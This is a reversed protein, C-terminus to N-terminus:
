RLAQMSYGKAALGEIICPVAAATTSKTSHMLISAGDFAGALVQSCIWSSGFGTTDASTAGWLILKVGNAAAADYTVSTRNGGPPRFYTPRVGTIRVIESISKAIDNYQWDYSRTGYDYIAHEFGHSQVAHGEAVARRLAAADTDVRSGLEFFTVKIGYCAAYNMIQNGYTLGDDFTLYVIGSSGGSVPKITEVTSDYYDVKLNYSRVGNTGLDSFIKKTAVRDLRNGGVSKVRQCSGITSASNYTDVKAAIDTVLSDLKSSSWEVKIKSDSKTVDLMAFLQAPSITEHYSGNNLTISEGVMAKTDALKAELDAKTISAAVIDLSIDSTFENKALKKSLAHCTNNASFGKGSQDPEIKLDTDYYFFADKAETQSSPIVSLADTCRKIDISIFPEISTNTKTKILDYKKSLSLKNLGMVLQETKDIDFSVGVDGPKFTWSAAGSKFIIEQGEFQSKMDKLKSDLHSSDLNGLSQGLVTVKPFSNTQFFISKLFWSQSFWVVLFCVFLLASVIKIFGKYRRVRIIFKNKFLKDVLEKAFLRRVHLSAPKEKIKRLKKDKKVGMLNLIM